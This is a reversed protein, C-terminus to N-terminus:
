TASEYWVQTGPPVEEQGVSQLECEFVWPPKFGPPKDSRPNIYNIHVNWWRCPVVRTSGDPLRLEVQSPLLTPTRPYDPWDDILEKAPQTTGPAVLQPFIILRGAVLFTQEVTLLLCHM